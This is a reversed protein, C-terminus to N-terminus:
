VSRPSWLRPSAFFRPDIDNFVLNVFTNTQLCIHCPDRPYGNERSETEKLQREVLPCSPLHLPFTWSFSHLLSPMQLWMILRKAKQFDLLFVIVRFQRKGTLVFHWKKRNCNLKVPTQGPATKIGIAPNYIECSFTARFLFQSLPM